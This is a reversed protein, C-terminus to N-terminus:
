QLTLFKNYLVTGLIRPVPNDISMTQDEASVDWLIHISFPQLMLTNAKFKLAMALMLMAIETLKDTEMIHPIYRGVM